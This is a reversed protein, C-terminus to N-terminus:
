GVIIRNPEPAPGEIVEIVRTVLAIDGVDILSAFTVQSGKRAGPGTWTMELHDSSEATERLVAYRMLHTTVPIPDEQTGAMVESPIWQPASPDDAYPLAQKEIVTAMVLPIKLQVLVPVGLFKAVAAITM